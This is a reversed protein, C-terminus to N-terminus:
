KRWEIARKSKEGNHDSFRQNDIAHAAYILQSEKLGHKKYYAKNNSGVYFVKDLHTYLWTLFIRRTIKKFLFGQPEDLLTSDGRFWVEIKGKFYRLAKLHSDFAWGWVWVIDAGWSEIEQNMTPNIIEKFHHSGPEKSINILFTYNCGDIIDEM